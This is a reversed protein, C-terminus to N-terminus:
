GVHFDSFSFSARALLSLEAVKEREDVTVSTGNVPRNERSSRVLAGYMM